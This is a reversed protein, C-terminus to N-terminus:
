PKIIPMGAQEPTRPGKSSNCSFCAPVINEKAYPGGQELPIVHDQTLVGNIEHWAKGCYACSYNFEAKIDEWEQLTLTAPLAKKRAERRQHNLRVKEPNNEKWQRLYERRYGPKNERRKRSNESARDRNEWYWQKAKARNKDPNRKAWEGNHAKIYDKNNDAWKKWAKARIEPHTKDYASTEKGICIKCRANLGNKGNAKRYFWESTEPKWELCKTCRKLVTTNDSSM